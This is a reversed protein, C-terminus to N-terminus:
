VQWGYPTRAELCAQLFPHDATGANGDWTADAGTNQAAVGLLITETLQAAYLFNCLTPRGTRAGELFATLDDVPAPMIVQSRAPQEAIHRTPLLINHHPGCLLMGKTGVFLRGHAWDIQQNHDDRITNLLDPRRGGEWWHVTCPQWPGRQPYSWSVHSGPTRDSGHVATPAGLELARQVLDLAEYGLTSLASHNKPAHVWTHAETIAGIVGSRVTAVVERYAADTSRETGMQTIVNPQLSLEALKRVQTVTYGLPRKCYVHIGHSLALAAAHPQLHGGGAAVVCDLDLADDDILARFDSFYRADAFADDSPSNTASGNVECWAVVREKSLLSRQQHDLGTTGIVGIRLQEQHIQAHRPSLITQAAALASSATGAALASTTAFGTKLFDRRDIPNPM